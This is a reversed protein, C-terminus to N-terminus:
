HLSWSLGQRVVGNTVPRGDLLKPSMRFKAVLTLAAKDFGANAPQEDTVACPNLRGDPTVRCALAVFGDIGQRVADTPYSVIFDQVAPKAVWRIQSEPIAFGPIKLDPDAPAEDTALVFSIPQQVPRGDAGPALKIAPALALAAEGFGWNPPDESAVKCGVLTGDAAATCNLVARGPLNLARAIPPYPTDGQSPPIRRVEDSSQAQSKAPPKKDAAWAGCCPALAAAVLLGAMMRELTM